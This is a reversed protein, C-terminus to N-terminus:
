ARTHGFPQGTSQQAQQEQLMHEKLGSIAAEVGAFVFIKDISQVRVPREWDERSVEDLESIISEFTKAKSWNLLNIRSLRRGFGETLDDDFRWSWEGGATVESFRLGERMRALDIPPASTESEGAHYEDEDQELLDEQISDHTMARARRAPTPWAAGTQRGGWSGQTRLLPRKRTQEQSLLVDDSTLRAVQLSSNTLTSMSSSERVRGEVALRRRYEVCAMISFIAPLASNTFNYPLAVFVQHLWPARTTYLRTLVLMVCVIGARFGTKLRRYRALAWPVRLLVPPAEELRIVADLERVLPWFFLPYLGIAKAALITMVVIGVVHVQGPHERGEDM